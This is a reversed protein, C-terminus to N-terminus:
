LRTTSVSLYHPLKLESHDDTRFSNFEHHEPFVCHYGMESLPLSSNWSVLM